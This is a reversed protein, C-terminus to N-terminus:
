ARRPAPRRRGPPRCHARAALDLVGAARHFAGAERGVADHEGLLEGARDAAERDLFDLRAQEAEVGRLAGARGAVAEALLHQEVRLQHDGVLREAELLARHHRPGLRVRRARVVHLHEGAERLGVFEVERGRPVLERLVLAVDDEVAGAAQRHREGELVAALFVGDGLREFAHDAVEVAAQQLGVTAHIRSSSLLNWVACGHSVQWPLRSLSLASATLSAPSSMAVGTAKLTVIALSQNRASGSLSVSVWFWIARAIRLSIL